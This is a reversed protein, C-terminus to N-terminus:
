SIGGLKRFKAIVHDQGVSFQPAITWGRARRVVPIMPLVTQSLLTQRRFQWYAWHQLHQRVREHPRVDDHTVEEWQELRMSLRRAIFQTHQFTLMCVHVAHRFYWFQAPDLRCAASDGNGTALVLIGNPRLLRVLKALTQLPAALHEFVDVMVVADFSGGRETDVAHHPLISLGKVAAAAAADRNIEIGCCRYYGVLSAFLRGSSCGFDLLRAGIPLRRLHAHVARETPHLGSIEWARYDIRRYFDALEDDSLRPTRFLLGCLSCDHIEYEPQYYTIGKVNVDFGRVVTGAITYDKAGCAPCREVLTPAALIPQAPASL